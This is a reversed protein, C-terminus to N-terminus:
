SLGSCIRFDCPGMDPSYPRQLVIHTLNKAFYDRVVLATHSPANDRHVFWSNKAWLEPRKLRIAERLRRV